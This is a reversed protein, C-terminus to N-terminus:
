REMVFSTESTQEASLWGSETLGHLWAPEIANAEAQDPMKTSLETLLEVQYSQVIFRM